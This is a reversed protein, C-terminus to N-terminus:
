ARGQVHELTVSVIPDGPYSSITVVRLVRGAVEVREGVKAPWDCRRALEDCDM